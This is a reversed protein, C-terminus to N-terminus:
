FWLVLSEPAITQFKDSDEQAHRAGSPCFHARVQHKMTHSESVDLLTTQNQNQSPKSVCAIHSGSLLSVDGNSTWRHSCFSTLCNLVVKWVCALFM